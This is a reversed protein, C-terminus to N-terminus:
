LMAGDLVRFFAQAADWVSVDGGVRFMTALFLIGVALVIARGILEYITMEREQNRQGVKWEDPVTISDLYAVLDAMAAVEHQPNQTAWRHAHETHAVVLRLIEDRQEKTLM